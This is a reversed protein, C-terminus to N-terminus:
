VGLSVCMALEVALGVTIVTLRREVDVVTDQTVGTTTFVADEQVAVTISVEVPPVARVGVPETMNEKVPTVPAKSKVLQLRTAPTVPVALQPTWKVGEAVPVAIIEPENVAVSM